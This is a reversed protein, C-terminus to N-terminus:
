LEIFDHKKIFLQVFHLTKDSFLIVFTVFILYKQILYIFCMFKIKKKNITRQLM